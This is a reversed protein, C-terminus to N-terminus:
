TFNITLNALVAQKMLIYSSQGHHERNKQMLYIKKKKPGKKLNLLNRLPKVTDSAIFKKLLNYLTKLGCIRKLLFM